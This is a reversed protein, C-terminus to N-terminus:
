WVVFGVGVGSGGGGAQWIDLLCARRGGERGEWGYVLGGRLVGVWGGVVREGGVEVGAGVIGTGLGLIWLVVEARGDGVILAFVAWWLGVVLACVAGGYGVVM